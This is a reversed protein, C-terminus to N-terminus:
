EVLLSLCPSNGIERFLQPIIELGSPELDLAGVRRGTDGIDHVGLARKTPRSGDPMTRAM